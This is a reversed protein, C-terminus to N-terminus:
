GEVVTGEFVMDVEVDGNVASPGSRKRTRREWM